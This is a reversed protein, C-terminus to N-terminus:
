GRPRQSARVTLRVAGDNSTQVAKALLYSSFGMLQEATLYFGAIEVVRDIEEQLYEERESRTMPGMATYVEPHPYTM